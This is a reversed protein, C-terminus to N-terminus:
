GTRRIARPDAYLFLRDGLARLMGSVEVPQAVLPLVDRNVPRGDAGVLFVYAERGALDRVYLLPPAGGSICRVACARHVKLRGPNM